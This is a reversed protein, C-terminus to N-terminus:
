KGLLKNIEKTLLDIDNTLTVNNIIANTINNTIPASPTTNIVKPKFITDDLNPHNKLLNIYNNVTSSQIRYYRTTFHIIEESNLVLSDERSSYMLRIISEINSALGLHLMSTFKIHYLFLTLVQEVFKSYASTDKAKVTSIPLLLLTKEYLGHSTLFLTEKAQTLNIPSRTMGYIGPDLTFQLETCSSGRFTDFYSDFDQNNEIFSDDSIGLKTLNSNIENLSDNYLKSLRGTINKYKDNEKSFNNFHYKSDLKSLMRNFATSNINTNKLVPFAASAVVCPTLISISQFDLFPRTKSKTATNLIHQTNSIINFKSNDSLYIHNTDKQITFETYKSIYMELDQYSLNNIVTGTNYDSFTSIYNKNLNYLHISGDKSSLSVANTSGFSNNRLKLQVHPTNDIVFDAHDDYYITTTDNITPKYINIFSLISDAELSFLTTGEQPESCFYSTIQDLHQLTLKRKPLRLQIRLM